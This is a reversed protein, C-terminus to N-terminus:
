KKDKFLKNFISKSSKEKEKEIINSMRKKMKTEKEDDDPEYNYKYVNDYESDYEDDDEELDDDYYYEDDDDDEETSFSNNKQQNNNEIKEKFNNKYDEYFEDDSQEEQENDEEDDDYEEEDDYYDDELEKNYYDNKEDIEEYDDIEEEDDDNEEEEDNSYFDDDYEDVIKRSEVDNNKTKNAVNKKSLPFSYNFIDENEDEEEFEDNEEIKETEELEELKYESLDKEFKTSVESQFVEYINKIGDIRWYNSNIITGARLKIHNIEQEFNKEKEEIKKLYEKNYLENYSKNTAKGSIEKLILQYLNNFQEIDLDFKECAEEMMSKHVKAGNIATMRENDLFSVIYEKEAKLFELKVSTDRLTKKYKELKIDDEDIENILKRLRDFAVVYCEAEKQAIEVRVDIAKKLVQENFGVKEDKGNNIMVSLIKNKGEENEESTVFMKLQKIRRLDAEEIQKKIKEVLQIHNKEELRRAKSCKNREKQKVNFESLFEIFNEKLEELRKNNKDVTQEIKELKSELLEPTEDLDEFLKNREEEVKINSQYLKKQEQQIGRIENAVKDFEDIVAEEEQIIQQYKQVEEIIEKYNSYTTKLNNKENFGFLTHFYRELVIASREYM